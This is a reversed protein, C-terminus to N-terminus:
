ECIESLFRWLKPSRFLFAFYVGYVEILLYVTHPTRMSLHVRACIAPMDVYRISRGVHLGTYMCVRMSFCVPADTYNHGDRTTSSPSCHSSSSSLLSSSQLFPSSIGILIPFCFFLSFSSQRLSVSYPLMEICIMWDTIRLAVAATLLDEVSSSSFSPSQHRYAGEGGEAEEKARSGVDSLGTFVLSVLWRM